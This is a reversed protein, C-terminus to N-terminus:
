GKGEMRYVGGAERDPKEIELPKLEMATYTEWQKTLHINIM